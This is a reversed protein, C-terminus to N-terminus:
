CSFGRLFFYARKGWFSVLFYTNWADLSEPAKATLKLSPKQYLAQCYKLVCLFADLSICNPTFSLWEGTKEVQSPFFREVFQCQTFCFHRDTSKVSIEVTVTNFMAAAMESMHHIIEPWDLLLANVNSRCLLRFTVKLFMSCELTCIETALRSVTELNTALQPRQPDHASIEHFWQFTKWSKPLNNLHRSNFSSMEHFGPFYMQTNGFM